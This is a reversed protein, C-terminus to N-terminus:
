WTAHYHGDVHCVGCAPGHVRTEAARRGPEAAGHARRHHDHLTEAGSPITPPLVLVHHSRHRADHLRGPPLEPHLRLPSPGGHPPRRPHPSLQARLTGPARARRQAPHRLHHPSRSPIRYPPPSFSTLYFQPPCNIHPLAQHKHRSHTSPWPSPHALLPKGSKGASLPDAYLKPLQIRPNLAEVHIDATPFYYWTPDDSSPMTHLARICSQYDLNEGYARDCDIIDPYEPLDVARISLTRLAILLIIINRLNIFSLLLIAPPFGSCM